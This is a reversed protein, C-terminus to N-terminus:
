ASASTSASAASSRRRRPSASPASCPTGTVTFSQMSTAPIGEVNPITARRLATAAVSSTCTARNRAAPAIGSALVLTACNRAKRSVSLGSCPRVTFGHSASREGPPDLPPSAATIAAHPEGSPRPVSMPPLERLGAATHPMAPNLGDAPRSGSRPVPLKESPWSAMRLSTPMRARVVASMASPSETTLPVIGSPSGPATSTVDNRTATTVDSPIRWGM